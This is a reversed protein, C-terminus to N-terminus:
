YFRITALFDVIDGQNLVGSVLDRTYTTRGGKITYSIKVINGNPLLDTLSTIVDMTKSVLNKNVGVTVNEFSGLQPEGITTSNIKITTAAEIDANDVETFNNSGAETPKLETIKLSLTVNDDSTNIVDYVDFFSTSVPM